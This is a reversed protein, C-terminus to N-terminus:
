ISNDTKMPPYQLFQTSSIHMGLDAVAGWKKLLEPFKVKGSHVAKRGEEREEDSIDSFLRGTKADKALLIGCEEFTERIAAM